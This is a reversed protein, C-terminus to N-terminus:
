VLDSQKLRFSGRNSDRSVIANVLGIFSKILASTTTQRFLANGFRFDVVNFRCALGVAADFDVRGNLASHDLFQNILTLVDFLAHRDQLNRVQCGHPQHQLQM